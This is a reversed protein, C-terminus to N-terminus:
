VMLVVSNGRLNQRIQHMQNSGVNDVNVIFVTKYEDLLEYLKTFYAEKKTRGEGSM